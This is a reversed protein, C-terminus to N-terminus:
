SLVTHAANTPAYALKITFDTVDLGTNTDSRDIYQAAITAAQGSTASGYITVTEYATKLSHAFASTTLLLQFIRTFNLPPYLFGVFNDTKM